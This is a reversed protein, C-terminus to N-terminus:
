KKARDKERAAKVLALINKWGMASARRAVHALVASASVGKGNHRLRIAARCNAETRVPYKGGKMGYKERDGPKVEAM